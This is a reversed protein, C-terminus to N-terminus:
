TFLSITPSLYQIIEIDLLLPCYNEGTFLKQNFIDNIFGEEAHSTTHATEGYHEFRLILKFYYIRKGLCIKKTFKLGLLIFMIKMFPKRKEVYSSLLM